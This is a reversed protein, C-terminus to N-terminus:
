NPLPLTITVRTFHRPQSTVVVTGNHGEIIKEVIALGLGTSNTGTTYFPEFIREMYEEAIGRGSDTITIVTSETDDDASNEEASINIEGNEVDKLAITSNSLLNTIVQTLQQPDAWCDLNKEVNVTFVCNEKWAHAEKLTQLVNSIIKHLAVWEKEPTGPSSFWIFDNLSTDLRNCERTIIKMLGLETSDNELKKCLMQASGYIASVPNRFKHAINSSMEGIAAMKEAKRIQAEMKKITSLDQLSILECGDCGDPMNLRTASCSVPVVSGDKRTLEVMSLSTDKLAPFIEEVKRDVTEAASFGSINELANNVSTIRGENDVTMIGTTIDDFIQKYLLSLRNFKLSTTSLAKETKWLREALLASLIGVLFFTIGHISFYNLVIWINEIPRYWFQKFFPPYCDLFELALITGYGLTCAAACALGGRRLLLFSGAIVPVYYIPMFISQSGGTFFVLASILLADLLVQIYAFRSLRKSNKLFLASIITFCYVAIIFINIYLLPPIIIARDKSQLLFNIGLLFTLIAVRLFLLWHLQKKLHSDAAAPSTTPNQLFDFM